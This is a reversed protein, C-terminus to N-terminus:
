IPSLILLNPTSGYGLRLHIAGSIGKNEIYGKLGENKQFRLWTSGIQISSQNAKPSFWIKYTEGKETSRQYIALIAKNNDIFDKVQYFFHTKTQSPM